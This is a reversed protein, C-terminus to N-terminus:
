CIDFEPKKHQRATKVSTFKLIILSAVITSFKKLVDDFIYEEYTYIEPLVDYRGPM